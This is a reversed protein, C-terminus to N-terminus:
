DGNALMSFRSLLIEVVSDIVSDWDGYTSQRMVKVSEYWHNSEGFLGWRWEYRYPLMLLTPHGIAGALHIISTDISVVIDMQGILGATDGMTALEDSFEYLNDLGGPSLATQLSFFDADIRSALIRIKDFSISRRRDARHTPSGSWTVGIKPRGPRSVEAVRAGWYKHYDNPISFYGGKAPVNDINTGFMHPLSMTGVWADFKTADFKKGLPVVEVGPFCHALLPIVEPQCQLVFHQTVEQLLPIYRSIMITDGLGQEATVVVRRGIFDNISVCRPLSFLQSNMYKGAEILKYRWEMREFGAPYNDNALDCFAMAYQLEACEPYSSEIKNRLSEYIVMDGMEFAITCANGLTVPDDSRLAIAKLVAEKADDYEATAWYILASVVWFEWSDKFSEVVDDNLFRKLLALADIFRNAHYAALCAHLFIEPDFENKELYDLSNRYAGELHMTHFLAWAVFRAEELKGWSAARIRNFLQELLETQANDKFVPGLEGRLRNSDRAAIADLVEKPWPFSLAPRWLGGGLLKSFIM